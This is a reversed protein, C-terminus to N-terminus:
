RYDKRKFLEYFFRIIYGCGTFYRRDFLSILIRPLATVMFYSNFSLYKYFRKKIILKVLKRPLFPLYNYIFALGRYDRGIHRNWHLHGSSFSAMEINKVDQESLYKKELAYRTITTKPYYKLFFLSILNPRHENYILVAEENNKISDDPIGIMHDAQVFIGNKKIIDIAYIIKETSSPRNLVKKCLDESFSQVGLQIDQCNAAKLLKVKEEDIFLPNISCLFPLKVHKKYENSFDRLWEKDHGFTDDAFHVYKINFREKSWILEKIVNDVTRQRIISSGRFQRYFDNFCYTCAFPCGRGSMVLYERKLYPMAKYFPEKYPLPLQNLDILEGEEIDGVLSGNYKYVIGKIKKKPLILQSDILEFENLFNLLSIESEGIAIADVCSHALVIEPVATTHIGGFIVYITKKIKKIENALALQYKFNDTLTSFCTIQPDLSVIKEALKKYDPQYRLNFYPNFARYFFLDAVYGNERLISMLYEIGLNEFDPYVFLIRPKM